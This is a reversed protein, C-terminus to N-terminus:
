LSVNFHCVDSGMKICTMRTTVTYRYTYIYIYIYIYIDGKGGNEGDRIFRITETSTLCWTWKRWQGSSHWLQPPRGPSGDTILRRNTGYLLVPEALWFYILFIAFCSTNEASDVATRLQIVTALGLECWSRGNTPQEPRRWLISWSPPQRLVTLKVSPANFVAWGGAEGWDKRFHKVQYHQLLPPYSMQCVVTQTCHAHATSVHLLFRGCTDRGSRPQLLLLQSTKWQVLLVFIAGDKCGFGFLIGQWSTFIEFM